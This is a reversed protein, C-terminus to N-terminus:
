ASTATPLPQSSDYCSINCSNFSSKSVRSVSQHSNANFHKQRSRMCHLPRCHKRNTHTYQATPHPTSDVGVWARERAAQWQETYRRPSWSHYRSHWTETVSTCLQKGHYKATAQFCLSTLSFPFHHPWLWDTSHITIDLSYVRIKTLDETCAFSNLIQLVWFNM